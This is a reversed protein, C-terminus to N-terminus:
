RAKRRWRVMDIFAELRTVLGAEGSHEDLVLTLLPVTNRMRKLRREILEMILSDPGCGFSAVSIIGDIVKHQSLYNAAGVAQWGFTWFIDKQLYRVGENLKQEDLMEPTIIRVGMKGLREFLAVSLLSDNLNYPHGVVGFTLDWTFSNSRVGNLLSAPTMGSLLQQRYASLNEQAAVLARRRRWPNLTFRSAIKKLPAFFDKGKRSLDIEPQLIYPLEGCLQSTMEPLGLFKPCLFRAEEVSVIRPVFIFDVKQRVLERVHGFFVKVPLCTEDVAVKIGENIIAKTTPPSVVVEVGLTQFFAKWGPFYQYYLLARPIGVKM